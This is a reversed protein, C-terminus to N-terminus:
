IRVLGMVRVSYESSGPLADEVDVLIGSLAFFEVNKRAIVRVVIGSLICWFV